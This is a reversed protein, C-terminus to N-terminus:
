PVCRTISSDLCIRSVIGNAPWPGAPAYGVGTATSWPQATNNTASPGAVIAGNFYLTSNGGSNVAGTKYTTGAVVTPAFSLNANSVNNTSIRFNGGANFFGAGSASGIQGELFGQTAGVGSPAESTLYVSVSFPSGPFSSGNLSNSDIARTAAAATTAIYSTMFAGAIEHQAGWAIVTGTDGVVTGVNVCVTVATLTGAYVAPSTCTLRTYTSALSTTSATCDGTSSGTGTLSISAKALTGAALYVSFTHQTASATTITQCSSQIAAGSVDSLTDATLANAPSTTTNATVTATSTWAVNSFDESQLASNTRAEEMLLGNVTGDSEVRPLNVGCSVMSTTTIGTAALGEKTCYAASARTHTIAEGKAGTVAVCGCVAGMGAGSAPAFEFFALSGCPVGRTSRGASSRQCDRTSYRPRQSANPAALALALILPLM